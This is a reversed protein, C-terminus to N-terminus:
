KNEILTDKEHSIAISIREPLKIDRKDDETFMNLSVSGLLGTQICVSQLKAFCINNM